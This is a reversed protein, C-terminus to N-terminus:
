IAIIRVRWKNFSYFFAVFSWWFCLCFLLCEVNHVVCLVVVVVDDSFGM